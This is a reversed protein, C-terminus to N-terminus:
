DTSSRSYLTSFYRAFVTADKALQEASIESLTTAALGTALKYLGKPLGEEAPRFVFMDGLRPLKTEEDILKGERNCRGAVQVISDLPGLARFARPFDVDVGAEVVQTSILWCPLGRALRDRVSGAQPNEKRGLRESRHEACMASSLHMVGDAVETGSTERLKRRLNEWVIRAHARINLVCLAQPTEQLHEVLEDWEWARNHELHYQVRSLNQFVEDRLSEPLIPKLERSSDQWSLGEPLGSSKRFAPQTATSFVLSVGYRRVLERFVSMLPNLIHVPMAQAEDFLVVSRAINHLKRCRRPSAALLSELFQVSTTAIIPADWNEIALEAAARIPPEADNTPASDEQVVASHHEIVQFPGFINKYDRANQEIISLYPIVVIVRRLDHQKAHALAFAMGALTKAGGTPVTLEFFGQPQKAGQEHCEQFVRNRLLTLPDAPYKKAREERERELIELLGAPDLKPSNRERGTSFRETDLRDADVLISFLMRTWVELRRAMDPNDNDFPCDLEDAPFDAIQAQAKPLVEDLSSRLKAEQAELKNLAAYHDHLGAHHGAVALGIAVNQLTYCAHAAGIIAHPVSTAARKATVNELYQQWQPQYKGLDHVLGAAHAAAAFKSDSPCAEAAFTRALEAVQKLHHHLLQWDSREDPNKGSHAYFASMNPSALDM